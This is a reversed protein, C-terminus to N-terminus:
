GRVAARPGYPASRALKDLTVPIEPDADAALVELLQRFPDDIPLRYEGTPPEGEWLEGRSTQVSM